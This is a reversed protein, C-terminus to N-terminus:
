KVGRTESGPGADPRSRGLYEGLGGDDAIEYFGARGGGAYAVGVWAILLPVFALWFAARTVLVALALGGGLAILALGVSRRHRESVYAIPRRPDSDGEPMWVRHVILDSPLKSKDLM